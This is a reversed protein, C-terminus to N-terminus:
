VHEAHAVQVRALLALYLGGPDPGLHGLAHREVDVEVGVHEVRRHHGGLERHRASPVLAAQVGLEGLKSGAAPDHAHLDGRELVDGRDREHRPRDLRQELNPRMASFGFISTGSWAGDYWSSSSSMSTPSPSSAVGPLM